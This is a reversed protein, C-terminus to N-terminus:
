KKSARLRGEIDNAMKINAELKLFTIADEINDGIARSDSADVIVSTNPLRRLIGNSICQEIYAKDKLLKDKSIAILRLPNNLYIDELLKAKQFSDMGIMVVGQELAFLYADISEPESIIKLYVEAAKNRNDLRTKEIKRILAQNHIYFRINKSRTITEEDPSNAVDRYNLCYRWLLYDSNNIPTGYKWRDEEKVYEEVYEALASDSSFSKLKKDAGKMESIAKEKTSDGLDYRFGIELEKGADPVNVSLSDWYRASETAFKVDKADTGLISPMISRLMDAHVTISNVANISSGIKNFGDPIVKANRKSYESADAKRYIIVKKSVIKM